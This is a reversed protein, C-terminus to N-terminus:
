NTDFLDLYGEPLNTIIEKEEMEISSILDGNLPIMLEKGENEIILLPNKPIEESFGVVSGILGYNEDIVKFSIWNPPLKNVSMSEICDSPMYVNNNVYVKASEM